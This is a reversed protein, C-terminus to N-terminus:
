IRSLYNWYDKPKYFQAGDNAIEDFEQKEEFLKKIEQYDSAEGSSVAVTENNVNIFRPQDRYARMSGYTVLTDTSLLVGDKFKVAMVAGAVNVARTSATVPEQHKMM